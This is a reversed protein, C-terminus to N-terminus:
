LLIRNMNYGDSAITDILWFSMEHKSYNNLKSECSQWIRQSVCPSLHLERESNVLCLRNKASRPKHRSARCLMLQRLARAKDSESLLMAMNLFARFDFVSISRIKHAVNIDTAFTEDYATIFSLLRKGKLLEYGNEKLEESYTSIYREITRVEVDFFSALMEKTLYYKDNWFVMKEVVNKQIEEIAMENNLINQRDIRSTTLDKTMHNDM